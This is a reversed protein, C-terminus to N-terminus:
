RYARKETSTLALNSFVIVTIMLWWLLSSDAILLVHRDLISGNPVDFRREVQSIPEMILSHMYVPLIDQSAAAANRDLKDIENPFIDQKYLDVNYSVMLSKDDTTDM